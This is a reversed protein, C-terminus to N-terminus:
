TRAHDAQWDKVTKKIDTPSLNEGIARDLLSPLEADSAFRLAVVQKIGLRALKARGEPSLLREGRVAMELRIIRDQLATIYVRGILLSVLVAVLMAGTYFGGAHYGLAMLVHCVFATVWALFGALFLKPTHAHNAFSQTEAM